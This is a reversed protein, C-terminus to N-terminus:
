GHTHKQVCPTIPAADTVQIGAPQQPMENQKSLTSMNSCTTLQPTTVVADPISAVNGPLSPKHKKFPSSLTAVRSMAANTVSIPDLMLLPAEQRKKNPAMVGVMSLNQKMYQLPDFDTLEAAVAQENTTQSSHTANADNSQTSGQHNPETRKQPLPPTCLVQSIGQTGATTEIHVVNGQNLAEADKEVIVRENTFTKHKLNNPNSAPRKAKKTKKPPMIILTNINCINHHQNNCHPALSVQQQNIIMYIILHRQISM